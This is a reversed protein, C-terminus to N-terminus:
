KKLNVQFFPCEEFDHIELDTNLFFQIKVDKIIM